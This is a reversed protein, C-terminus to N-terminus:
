DASCLVFRARPRSECPPVDRDPEIWRGVRLAREALDAGEKLSRGFAEDTVFLANLGALVTGGPELVALCRAVLRGYGTRADFRRKKGPLDFRPPPDVIILDFRGRGKKARKLYSIVDSALFSRTDADVGSLEYNRRAVALATKKNDVNTTARAGGAGAAVGFAGTYSFLNLVRRGSALGRVLRRAARADLFLGTHEGQAVNVAFRLGEEDIVVEPSHPEGAVQAGSRLAEDRSYRHKLYVPADRGFRDSCASLLEEVPADRRHQELVYLPGYRDLTLGDFGDAEAHVIRLAAPAGLECAGHLERRAEWAADLLTRAQSQSMDHLTM